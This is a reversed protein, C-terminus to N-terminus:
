HNKPLHIHKDQYEKILALLLKLEETLPTDEQAHFIEM